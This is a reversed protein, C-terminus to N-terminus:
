SEVERLKDRLTLLDRWFQAKGQPQRLLYAPHFVPLLPIEGLEDDHYTLWRGRLRTIGKDIGLLAHVATAGLAILIRPSKLRIHRRVFPLCQATEVPTPKRNGPPRWFFVNTIYINRDRSVGIEALMRDLLKGSAGVFPRGIRDEDAGPAEGIAMLPADEAGDAFVTHLATRKLACADFGEVAVRLEALTTCARALMEADAASDRLPAIQPRAGASTRAPASATAHECASRSPAAPCAAAAAPTATRRREGEPFRDRPLAGVTTDVGALQYWSLLSRLATQLQGERMTGEM